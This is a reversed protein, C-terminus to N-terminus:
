LLPARAAARQGFNRWLGAGLARGRGDRRAKRRRRGGGAAERPPDTGALEKPNCDDHWRLRNRSKGARGAGSLPISEFVAALAFARRFSVSSAGASAGGAAM